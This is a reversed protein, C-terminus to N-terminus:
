YAGGTPIFLATTRGGLGVVNFLATLPSFVKSVWAAAEYFGNMPVYVIDGPRLYFNTSYDGRDFFDKLRCAYIKTAGDVERFLVTDNPEATPRLGIAQGLLDAVRLQGMYPYRGPRAVQGLITVSKSAFANVAVYVKPKKALALSTQFSTELEERLKEATKGAVVIDGHRPFSVKGDPRVFDLIQFQDHDLVRITVQDGEGIVYEPSTMLTRAKALIANMEAETKCGATVALALVLAVLAMRKMM